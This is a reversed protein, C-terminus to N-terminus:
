ANNYETRFYIMDEECETCMPTGNDSYWDPGVYDTEKCEPCKWLHRIKTDDLIVIWNDM